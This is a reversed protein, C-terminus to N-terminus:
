VKPIVEPQKPENVPLILWVQNGAQHINHQWVKKGDEAKSGSIDFTKDVGHTKILYGKQAYNGKDARVIEFWSSNHQGPDSIIQVANDQKDGLVCLANKNEPLVLAYKNQENHHLNFKQMSNGSYTKVIVENSTTDVTM